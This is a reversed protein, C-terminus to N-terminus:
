KGGNIHKRLDGVKFYFADSRIKGPWIQLIETSDSYELLEDVTNVKLITEEYVVIFPTPQKKNTPISLVFQTFFPKIDKRFGKPDVKTKIKEM